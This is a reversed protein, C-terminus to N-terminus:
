VDARSLLKELPWRPAHRSSTKAKGIRLIFVPRDNIGFHKKVNSRTQPDLVSAGLASTALGDRQALISIRSYMRGANLFASKSDESCRVIVLASSNRILDGSKRAQPGGAPAHKIATKALLSKVHGFGHTFGPMGDFKRTQNTRVWRSLEQRYVPNNMIATIAVETEGAIFDIDERSTVVTTNVASFAFETLAQLKASDVARTDFHNRNSVRHVIADLLEPEPAVPKGLTLTAAIHKAPFTHADVTYGFGRAALCFAELFTGLSVFPEVSVLGSGDISLYHEKNLLLHLSDKAVKLKWPQTNHGSPALIAYRAFFALKEANTWDDRFDKARVNWAAYNNKKPM